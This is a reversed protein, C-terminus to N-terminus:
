KITDSVGLILAHIYCHTLIAHSKMSAIVKAVGKKVGSM